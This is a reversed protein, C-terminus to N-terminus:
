AGLALSQASQANASQPDSNPVKRNRSRPGGRPRRERASESGARFVACLAGRPLESYGNQTRM